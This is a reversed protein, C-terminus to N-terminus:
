AVPIPEIRISDAPGGLAPLTVRYLKGYQDSVILRGKPDTALNVWSGQTEKPVSYLLEVQFGKLAKIRDAPTASPATPRDAARAALLLGPALLAATMVACTLTRRM